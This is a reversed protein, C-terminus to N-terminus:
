KFGNLQVITVYLDIQQHLAKMVCVIWVTSHIYVLRVATEVMLTVIQMTPKMTASAM